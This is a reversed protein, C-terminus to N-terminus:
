YSKYLCYGVFEQIVVIDEDSLVEKLFKKIILCSAGKNYIVPLKSYIFISDNERLTIIHLRNIIYNALQYIGEKRKLSDNLLLKVEELLRKDAAESEMEEGISELPEISNM